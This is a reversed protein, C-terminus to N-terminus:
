EDDEVAPVELVVGERPEGRVEQRADEGAVVVGAGIQPARRGWLRM